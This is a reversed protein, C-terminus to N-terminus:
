AAVRAAVVVAFAAHTDFADARAAALVRGVREFDRSSILPPEYRISDTPASRLGVMVRATPLAFASDMQNASPKQKELANEPLEESVVRCEDSLFSM